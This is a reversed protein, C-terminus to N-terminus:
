FRGDTVDYKTPKNLSAGGSKVWHAVMEMLEDLAVEPYGMLAHCASANSLLARESETGQLICEKQFKGAFFQAARRVSITEPGTINLIRPPSECLMLSRLAYSNADGQWIANFNAVSIDIPQEASVKRAIDILVGYRLDVAYNLRFILCRTGHQHSFFEFIRERGLCSQAYEGLPAPADTEHSGGQATGVFPYVNGTSFVVIRSKRFREAINAPVLTNIAWTLDSRDTSGFKRGALFLVNECLPLAEIESRSLLDCSITEVGLSELGTRTQPSPFRSVAMVRREVNAQESARKIRHALSPGMKGGAGLIMVDGSLHRMAEVDKANPSSLLNELQAETEILEM